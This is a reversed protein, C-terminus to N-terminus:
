EQYQIELRVDGPSTRVLDAAGDGNTQLENFMLKLDIASSGADFYSQLLDPNLAIGALEGAGCARGSAGLTAYSYDDTNLPYYFGVYVRMCGLVGFPNGSLSYSPIRLTVSQIDAGSPLQSLNFQAFGIAGDNSSLDGFNFSNNFYDNNMTNALTPAISLTKLNGVSTPQANSTTATPMATQATGTTEPTATVNGDLVVPVSIKAYFASKNEFSFLKGNEDALMFNAQYHGSVSPATLQISVDIMEGPEVVISTFSSQPSANM